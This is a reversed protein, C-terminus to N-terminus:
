DITNNCTSNNIIRDIIDRRSSNKFINDNNFTTMMSRKFAQFSFSNTVNSDNDLKDIFQLMEDRFIKDGPQLISHYEPDFLHNTPSVSKTCVYDLLIELQRAGASMNESDMHVLHVDGKWLEKVVPNDVLSLATGFATDHNDSKMAKRVTSAINFFHDDSLSFGVFLMHRTILLAQVIGALAQKRENYNLYHARTLVIDDKHNICGHLKLLWKDPSKGKERTEEADYPLIRLKEGVSQTAAEFLVDYNTTVYEKVPLTALMAHSISYSDRKM